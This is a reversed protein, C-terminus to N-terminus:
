VARPSQRQPRAVRCSAALHERDRWGDHMAMAGLSNHDHDRGLRRRALKRTWYQAAALSRRGADLAGDRCRGPDRCRGTRCRGRFGRAPQVAQAVARCGVPKGIWLRGHSSGRTRRPFRAPERSAQHHVRSSGREGEVTSHADPCRRTASRGSLLSLRGRDAHRDDPGGTTRDAPLPRRMQRRERAVAPSVRGRTWRRHASGM